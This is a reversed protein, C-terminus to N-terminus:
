ENNLKGQKNLYDNFSLKLMELAKDYTQHQGRKLMLKAYEVSPARPCAQGIEYTTPVYKGDEGVLCFVLAWGDWCYVFHNEVNQNILRCLEITVQM